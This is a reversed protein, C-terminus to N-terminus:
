TPPMTTCGSSFDHGPSRLLTVEGLTNIELRRLIHIPATVVRLFGTARGKERNVLQSWASSTLDHADRDLLEFTAAEATRDTKDRGTLRLPYIPTMALTTSLM